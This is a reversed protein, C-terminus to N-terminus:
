AQEELSTILLLMETNRRKKLYEVLREYGKEGERESIMKTLANIFARQCADRCPFTCSVDCSAAFLGEDVRESIYSKADEDSECTKGKKQRIFAIAEVRTQEKSEVDFYYFKRSYRTRIRFGCTGKEKEGIHTLSPINTYGADCKAEDVPRNRQNEARTLRRLNELRNDFRNCNIHDVEDRHLLHPNFAFFVLRHVYHHLNNIKVCLYGGRSYISYIRQVEGNETCVTRINTGTYDIELKPFDVLGISAFYGDLPMFQKRAEVQTAQQSNGTEMAYLTRKM